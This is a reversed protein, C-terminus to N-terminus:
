LIAAAAQQTMKRLLSPKEVKGQLFEDNYWTLAKKQFAKRTATGNKGYHHDLWESTRHLADVKQPDLQIM